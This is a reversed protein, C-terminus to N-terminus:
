PRSFVAFAVLAAVFAAVCAALAVAFAAWTVTFAVTEAIEFTTDNIADVDGHLKIIIPTIRNSIKTTIIIVLRIELAPPVRSPPAAHTIPSSLWVM